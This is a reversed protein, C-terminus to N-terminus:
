RDTQGDTQRERAGGRERGAEYEGKGERRVEVCSKGGRRERGGYRVM